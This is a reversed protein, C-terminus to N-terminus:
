GSRALNAYRVLLRKLGAPEAFVVAVEADSGAGRLGVVTGEGWRPHIVKEGPQPVYPGDGSDDGGSGVRARGARPLGAPTRGATPPAGGGGVGPAPGRRGDLGGARAPTWASADDITAGREELRGPQIESLFRSPIGPQFDGYVTRYWAHTLYLRHRARTMGVYCLRREEELGAPDDLSRVHPFLGEELGILWVVDFELGKASHLTMLSVADDQSATDVEATLAVHALFDEPTDEFGAGTFERTINLLEQLNELRGAAEITGEERLARAYGSDELLREMLASVPLRDREAALDLILRGFTMAADAQPRTLGEIEGAEACAHVPSIGLRRAHEDIRLLSAPGLGRRPENVVREYALRDHPNVVLRLYSLLDKVEKREYFRLGGVIVYPIGRRVFVDELVRSQAHTRYLVAGDSWAIGEEARLRELEAAVFQAEDRE